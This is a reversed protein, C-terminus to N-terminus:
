AVRGALAATPSPVPQQVTVTVQQPSISVLELGGTATFTLPVTHTGVELDAVSITAVLARIDLGDLASITGGLTVDVSNTGLVYLRDSRPGVLAVGVSYSRTGTEEVISVSVRIEGNGTATVQDPLALAVEMEFDATRGTLDIPVTHAGDM